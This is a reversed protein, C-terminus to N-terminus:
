WRPLWYPLVFLLAITIATAVFSVLLAKHLKANAVELGNILTPDSFMSEANTHDDIWPHFFKCSASMCDSPVPITDPLRGLASGNYIKEEGGFHSVHVGVGSAVFTKPWDRSAHLQLWFKLQRPRRAKLTDLRNRMHAIAEPYDRADLNHQEFPDATLNFLLFDSDYTTSSCSAGGTRYGQLLRSQWSRLDVLVPMLVSHALLIRTSDFAGVGAMLELAAVSMEFLRVVGRETMGVASALWRHATSINDNDCDSDDDGIGTVYHMWRGPPERYWASDTSVGRVLKLDRYVFAEMYGDFCSEGEYYMDLLVEERGPASETEPTSISGAIDIENSPRADAFHTHQRISASLDIGDFLSFFADTDLGSAPGSASASNLASISSDITELMESGTLHTPKVARPTYNFNERTIGAFSLLTPFWDSIHMLKSYERGTATMDTMSLKGQDRDTASAAASGLGLYRGDPSLDMAFAPVLVGGQLSTTKGGRYPENMGGFWTSGGNDSAIVVITDDGLSTSITEMLLPLNRDVGVLLGCFHRRWQNAIHKCLELDEATPQLPSHGATFSVYLFLPSSDEHSSKGSNMSVHQHIMDVANASIADTSHRTESFHRYSGNRHASVWDTALPEWPAYYYQKNFYDVDWMYCGTYSNFGRGVPTQKWQSNGLHWKGSMATNYGSRLLVEPLTPIDMPLGMPSAPFLPWTLGVNTPYRGTM